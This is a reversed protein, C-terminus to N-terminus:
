ANGLNKGPLNIQKAFDLMRQISLKAREGVARDVHIENHGKELVEALNVLSNMAM